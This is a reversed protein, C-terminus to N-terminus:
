DEVHGAGVVRVVKGDSCHKKLMLAMHMDRKTIMANHLLPLAESVNNQKSEKCKRDDADFENSQSALRSEIVIVEFDVMAMRVLQM